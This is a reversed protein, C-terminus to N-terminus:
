TAPPARPAFAGAVCSTNTRAHRTWRPAPPSCGRGAAADAVRAAINVDVGLYDDGERPKGTHLGARLAPRYGDVTIASVAVCAEHAAEIADAGDVFVAM